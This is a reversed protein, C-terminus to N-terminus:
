AEGVHMSRISEQVDDVFCKKNDDTRLITRYRGETELTTLAEHNNAAMGPDPEAKLHGVVEREDL